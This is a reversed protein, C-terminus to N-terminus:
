DFTSNDMETGETWPPVAAPNPQLLIAPNLMQRREVVKLREKGRPLGLSIEIQDLEQWSSLGAFKVKRETLLNIVGEPNLVQPTWFTSEANVLSEVTEIADAKTHGILGM